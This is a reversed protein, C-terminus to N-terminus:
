RRQNSAITAPWRRNVMNFPGLVKKEFSKDIEALPFRKQNV